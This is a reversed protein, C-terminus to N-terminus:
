MDRLRFVYTSSRAPDPLMKYSVAAVLAGILVVSLWAPLYFHVSLVWGVLFLAVLFWM